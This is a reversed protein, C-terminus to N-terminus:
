PTSRDIPDRVRPPVPLDLDSRGGGLSPRGTSKFERRRARSRMMGLALLGCVAYFAVKYAAVRVLWNTLM